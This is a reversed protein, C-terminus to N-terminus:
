LSLCVPQGALTGFGVKSRNRVLRVRSPGRPHVPFGACPGARLLVAKQDTILTPEGELVRIFEDQKSHRHLLSSESGPTLRTLNVGFNRLGFFDGLPRKQGGAMRSFFPEPYSSPKTRLPADEALLAVPPTESDTM